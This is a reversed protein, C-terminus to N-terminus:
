LALRHNWYNLRKRKFWVEFLLTILRAESSFVTSSPLWCFEVITKSSNSQSFFDQMMRSMYTCLLVCTSYDSLLWVSYIFDSILVKDETYPVSYGEAIASVLGSIKSAAAVTNSVIWGSVFLERIIATVRHIPYTLMQKM